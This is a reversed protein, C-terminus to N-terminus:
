WGLKECEEKISNWVIDECWYHGKPTEIIRCKDAANSREYVNKVTEYSRRVGHIPFITDKEGTIITLARPAILCSLDQMDFYKYASPIYNCDCHAVSLISEKYSCFSCSPVCLKIREDFCASYYSTTGGGSNGTIIIKDMDCESFYALADIAKHVDWVREGVLTRGLEIALRASWLCNAGTFREPTTPRCEGMARQEIALAIFGREVAQVAFKGRTRAYEGDGDDKGEGISNHFGTSHGQLTIAVPYKKKGTDPILLYCPVTAGIESEFTFRILEYGGKKERWEVQVNLLCSNKEIEKIGTLEVFKQRINEKWEGYNVNENYGFKQGMKEILLDHVLEGNIVKQERM